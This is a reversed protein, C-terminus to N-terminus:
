FKKNKDDKVGMDYYEAVKDLQKRDKIKYSYYGDKDKHYDNEEEPKGDLYIKVVDIYFTKPIFPLKISQSSSIGEVTGTFSDYEEEGQWVIASIYHPKSNKDEKFVAGCRNNQYVKPLDTAGEVFNWESDEGTIPSLPMFSLIKKITTSLTNSVWSASCGSHGQLSFIKIIENIAPLYPEITLEDEKLTSKLIALENYMHKEYNNEEM